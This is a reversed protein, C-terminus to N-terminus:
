HLVILVCKLDKTAIWAIKQQKIGVVTATCFFKGNSSLVHNYNQIWIGICFVEEWWLYVKIVLM